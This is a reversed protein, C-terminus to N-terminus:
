LTCADIQNNKIRQKLALKLERNLKFQYFSKNIYEASGKNYFIKFLEKEEM